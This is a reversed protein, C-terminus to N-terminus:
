AHLQGVILWRFKSVVAHLQLAEEMAPDSLTFRQQMFHIRPLMEDPFLPRGRRGEPAYPEILAGLDKWPVVQRMQEIFERKRTNKISLNLGLHTPSKHLSKM